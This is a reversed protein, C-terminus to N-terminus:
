SSTAKTIVIVSMAVAMPIDKPMMERARPLV